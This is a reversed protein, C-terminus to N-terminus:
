TTKGTVQLDGGTLTARSCPERPTRTGTRGQPCWARVLLAAMEPAHALQLNHRPGEIVQGKATLAPAARVNLNANCHMVNERRLMKTERITDM